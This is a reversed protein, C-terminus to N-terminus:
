WTVAEAVAAAAAPSVTPPSCPKKVVDEEEEIKEGNGRLGASDETEIKGKEGIGADYSVNVLAGFGQGALEQGFPVFTLTGGSVLAVAAVVAMTM